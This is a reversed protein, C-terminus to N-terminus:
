ALVASKILTPSSTGLCINPRDRERVQVQTILEDKFINIDRGQLDRLTSSTLLAERDGTYVAHYAPSAHILSSLTQVDPLNHLIAVKLEYPMSELPCLAAM